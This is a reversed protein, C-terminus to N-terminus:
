RRLALRFRYRARTLRVRVAGPRIGLMEAIQATAFKDVLFLYLLERDAPDLQDLADQAAQTERSDCDLPIPMQDLRILNPRVRQRLRLADIVRNRVVTYLWNSTVPRGSQFNVYAALFADQVCDLAIEDDGALARGFSYLAPEYQEMLALLQEAPDGQHRLPIPDKVESPQM